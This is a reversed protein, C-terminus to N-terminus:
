WVKKLFHAIVWIVLGLVTGSALFIGFIMWGIKKRSSDFDRRFDDDLRPRLPM